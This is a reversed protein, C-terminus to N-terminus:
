EGTERDSRQGIKEVKIIEIVVGDEEMTQTKRRLDMLMELSVRLIRLKGSM